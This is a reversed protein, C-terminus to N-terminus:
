FGLERALLADTAPDSPITSSSLSVSSSDSFSISSPSASSLLSVVCGPCAREEAEEVEEVDMRAVFGTFAKDVDVDGGNPPILLLEPLSLPLMGSWAPTM